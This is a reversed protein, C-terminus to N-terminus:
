QLSWQLMGFGAAVEQNQSLSLRFGRLYESFYEQVAGWLFHATRLGADGQDACMGM